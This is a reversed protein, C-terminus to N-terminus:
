NNIELPLLCNKLLSFVEEEKGDGLVENMGMYTSFSLGCPYLKNLQNKVENDIRLNLALGHFTVFRRTCLGISAVKKDEYWLGLYKRSEDLGNLAYSKELAVKVNKLIQNMYDLVKIKKHELSIIPYFVFQNPHHFTLGGGRSIDHLPIQLDKRLEDDFDILGDMRQLGRGMTLCTPHSCYIFVSENKNEAIKSAALEQFSLCTNYDWNKKTIILNDEMVEFDNAQIGFDSLNIESLLKM